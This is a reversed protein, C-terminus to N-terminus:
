DKEKIIKLIRISFYLKTKNKGLHSKDGQRIEKAEHRSEISLFIKYWKLILLDSKIDM